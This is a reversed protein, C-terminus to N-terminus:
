RRVTRSMMNSLESETGHSNIAAVACHYRGPALDKVSHSTATPDQVYVPDLHVGSATWCHIVYGALDTLPSDDENATPAIWTLTATGSGSTGPHDSLITSRAGFYAVAIMGASVLLWGITRLTRTMM